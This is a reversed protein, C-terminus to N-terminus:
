RANVPMECYYFWVFLAMDLIILFEPTRINTYSKAIMSEELTRSTSAEDQFTLGILGDSIIYEYSSQWQYIQEISPNGDKKCLRKYFSNVTANSSNSGKIDSLKEISKSYDLDTIILTKIKLEALIDRYNLAYAGGVQIFAIYSNNLTSFKDLNILKRIYLRESEGEYLVVKDAFILESYGIEFFWDYFNELLCVTDEDIEDIKKGNISKKFESLDFLESKSKEIQRIVRM